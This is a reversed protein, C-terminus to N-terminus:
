FNSSTNNNLLKDYFIVLKTDYLYNFKLVNCMKFLPERIANYKTYCIRALIEGRLLQLCQLLAKKRVYCFVYLVCGPLVSLTVSCVNFLVTAFPNLWIAGRRSCDTYCEIHDFRKVCYVSM